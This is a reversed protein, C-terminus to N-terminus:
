HDFVADESDAGAKGGQKAIWRRVDGLRWHNRKNIKLPAPFGLHKHRADHLMRWVHMESCGGLLERLERIKVCVSTAHNSM